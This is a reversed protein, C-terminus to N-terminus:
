FLEVRFKWLVNCKRLVSKMNEKGWSWDGLFFYNILFFVLIDNINIDRDM